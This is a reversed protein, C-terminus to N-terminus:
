RRSYLAVCPIMEWKRIYGDLSGGGDERFPRCVEFLPKLQGHFLASSDARPFLCTAQTKPCVIRKNNLSRNSGCISTGPNRTQRFCTCVRSCKLTRENHQAVPDIDRRPEVQEPAARGKNAERTRRSAPFVPRDLKTYATDGPTNPRIRNKSNHVRTFCVIKLLEPSRQRHCSFQVCLSSSSRLSLWSRRSVEQTQSWIAEFPRCWGRRRKPHLVHSEQCTEHAAMVHLM